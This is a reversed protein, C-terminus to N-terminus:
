LRITAPCVLMALMTWMTVPLLTTTLSVSPSLMADMMVWSLPQHIRRIGTADRMEFTQAVLSSLSLIRQGLLKTAM